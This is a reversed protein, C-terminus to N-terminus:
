LSQGAAGTLIIAKVTPWGEAKVMAVVCLEVGTGLAIIGGGTSLDILVATTAEVHSAPPVANYVAVARAVPAGSLMTAHHGRETAGSIVAEVPKCGQAALVPSSSCGAALVLAALVIRRMPEGWM